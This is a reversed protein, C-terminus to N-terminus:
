ICNETDFIFNSVNEIRRYWNSAIGGTKFDDHKLNLIECIFLEPDRYGDSDCDHYIDKKTYQKGVFSKKGKWKWMGFELYLVNKRYWCSNVDLRMGTNVYRSNIERQLESLSNVIPLKITNREKEENEKKRNEFLITEIQNDIETLENLVKKRKEKLTELDM